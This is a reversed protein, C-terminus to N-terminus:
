DNTQEKILDNCSVEENFSKEEFYGKSLEMSFVIDHTIANSVIVVKHKDLLYYLDELFDEM